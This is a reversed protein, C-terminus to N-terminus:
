IRKTIKEISRNFDNKLVSYDYNNPPFWEKCSIVQNIFDRRDKLNFHMLKMMERYNSIGLYITM